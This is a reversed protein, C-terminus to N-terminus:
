TSKRRFQTAKVAARSINYGAGEHQKELYQLWRGAEDRKSSDRFPCNISCVPLNCIESIYRLNKEPVYILPRIIKIQNDFYSKVPQLGTPSGTLTINMLLTEAADDAHHGTAIQHIGSQVAAQFLEKRRQRSCIYCNFKGRSENKFSAERFSLPIDLLNYYFSLKDKMLDTLPHEIWDVQVGNMKVPKEQWRQWLKLILTLALSDKGGSCAIILPKDAETMRFETVATHCLKVSEKIPVPLKAGKLWSQILETKLESNL